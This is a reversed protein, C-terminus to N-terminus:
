RHSLLDVGQKMSPLPNRFQRSSGLFWCSTVELPFVSTPRRLRRVMQRIRSFGRYVWISREKEDGGFSTLKARKEESVAEIGGKEALYDELIRRRDFNQSGEDGRSFQGTMPRACNILVHGRSYWQLPVVKYEQGKFKIVQQTPKRFNQRWFGYNMDCRLFYWYHHVQSYAFHGAPDGGGGLTGGGHPTTEQWLFGGAPWTYVYRGAM